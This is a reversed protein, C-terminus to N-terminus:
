VRAKELEKVYGELTEPSALFLSDLAHDRMEQLTTGELTALWHTGLQPNPSHIRQSM